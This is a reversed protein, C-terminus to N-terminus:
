DTFKLFLIKEGLKFQISLIEWILQDHKSCISMYAIILKWLAKSYYSTLGQFVYAWPGFREATTLSLM